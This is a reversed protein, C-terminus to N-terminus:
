ELIKDVFIAIDEFVEQKNIEHFLDHRAKPYINLLVNKRDYKVLKNYLYTAGKFTYGYYDDSGSLLLIPLKQPINRIRRATYMWYSYNYFSKYFNISLISQAACNTDKTFKKVEEKDRTIYSYRTKEHEFPKSHMKFKMKEILSAPAQPEIFGSMIGAISGLLLVKSHRMYATSVLILGTLLDGRTWSYSQALISGYGVGLLIVPLKYYAIALNTLLIMDDVSYQFVDGYFEGRHEFGNSSDGFGRLDQSVVIYGRKNFFDAFEQYRLSYDCEDHAIQIIGLPREVNDWAYCKITQAKNEFSFTRM